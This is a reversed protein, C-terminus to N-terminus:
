FWNYLFGDAFAPKKWAVGMSLVGGLRISHDSRPSLAIADSQKWFGRM